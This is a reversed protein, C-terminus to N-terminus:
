VAVDALGGWPLIQSLAVIDGACGSAASCPDPGTGCDDAGAHIAVDQYLICNPNGVAVDIRDDVFSIMARGNAGVTINNHLDGAHGKPYVGHIGSGFHGGGDHNHIHMGLTKSWYNSHFYLSAFVHVGAGPEPLFSVTGTVVGTHFSAVAIPRQFPDAVGAMRNKSSPPVAM